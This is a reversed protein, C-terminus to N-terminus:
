GSSVSHGRDQRSYRGAQHLPHAVSHRPHGSQRREASDARLPIFAEAQCGSRDGRGVQVHDERWNVSGASCSVEASRRGLIWFHLKTSNPFQTVPVSVTLDETLMTVRHPERQAETVFTGMMERASEHTGQHLRKREKHDEVAADNVFGAAREIGFRLCGECKGFGFKNPQRVNRFYREKRWVKRLLSVTAAQQQDGAARKEERWEGALEDAMDPLKIYRPMYIIGNMQEDGTRKVLARLHQYAWDYHLANSRGKNGHLVKFLRVCTGSHSLAVVDRSMLCAFGVVDRSM